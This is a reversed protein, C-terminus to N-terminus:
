WTGCITCQLKPIDTELHERLHEKYVQKSRFTRACIHCIQNFANLHIGRIHLAM